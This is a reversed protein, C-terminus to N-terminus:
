IPLPTMDKITEMSFRSTVDNLATVDILRKYFEDFAKM